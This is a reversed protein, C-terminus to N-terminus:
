LDVPLRAFSCAGWEGVFADGTSLGIRTRVRSRFRAAESPPVHGRDLAGICRICVLLARSLIMGRQVATALWSSRVSRKLAPQYAAPVEATVDRTSASTLLNRIPTFLSDPQNSEPPVVELETASDGSLAEM